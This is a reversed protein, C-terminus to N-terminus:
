CYTNSGSSGHTERSIRAELEEDSGFQSIVAFAQAEEMLADFQDISSKNKTDNTTIKTM